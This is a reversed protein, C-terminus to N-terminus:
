PEVTIIRRSLPYLQEVLTRGAAQPINTQIVYPAAAPYVVDSKSNLDGAYVQSEWAANQGQAESISQELGAIGSRIDNQIYGLRAKDSESLAFTAIGVSLLMVGGALAMKYSWLRIAKRIRKHRGAPATSGWWTKERRQRFVQSLNRYESYQYIRDMNSRPDFRKVVTVDVGM